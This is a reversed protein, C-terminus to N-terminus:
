IAESSIRIDIQGKSEPAHVTKAGDRTQRLYLQFLVQKNASEPM